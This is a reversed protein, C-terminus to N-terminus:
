VDQILYMHVIQWRAVLTWWGCCRGSNLSHWNESAPDHLTLRLLIQSHHLRVLEFLTCSSSKPLSNTQNENPMKFNYLSYTILKKSKSKFRKVQKMAQKM